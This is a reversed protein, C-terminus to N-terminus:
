KSVTEPVAQGREAEMVRGLGQLDGSLVYDPTTKRKEFLAKHQM